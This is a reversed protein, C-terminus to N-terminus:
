KWYFELVLYFMILYSLAFAWLIGLDGGVSQVYGENYGYFDLIATGNLTVLVGNVTENFMIPGYENRMFARFSYRHPTIYGIWRIWWGINYFVIFFGEVVMCLGFFGAACAIGIIYHPSISGVFFVFTEAFILSFWLCLFYFGFNNLSSMFVIVISTLLSIILTGPIMNALFQAIVYPAVTYAGNRKERLFVARDEMIFPIVAVSMFVFFAAVFFLLSNRAVVSQADYTRGMYLFTLGLFLALMLYMVLRVLILGPNRIVNLFNRHLLTRLNSGFGARGGGAVCCRRYFNENDDDDDDDDFTPTSKVPQIPTSELSAANSSKIDDELTIATSTQVFSEPLGSVSDPLLAGGMELRRKVIQAFHSKKFAVALEDISSPRKFLEIEFDTNVLGIIYDAPNFQAPCSYGFSEFFKSALSAEGVFVTSGQAMLMFQDFRAWIESSPQHITAVISHGLNALNKLQNMVAYASASDLGSTPEDLLLISPSSILEVAISLRRRQGGSLGKFFITGVITDACSRLGIADILTEIKEKLDATPVNYGYFFRAAFWLTERVTFDGLLADEQSVYSLLMRRKRRHERKGNFLIQGTVKIGKGRLRHAIADLLSTKGSGSPGMIALVEGPAVALSVDKLIEKTTGNKLKAAYSVNKVGLVTRRVPGTKILVSTTGSPAGNEIDPM